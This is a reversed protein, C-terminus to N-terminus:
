REIVGHIFQLGDPIYGLEKLRYWSATLSVKFVDSVTVLLENLSVLDAGSSPLVKTSVEKILSWPMLVASAFANAQWELWDRESQLRDTNKRRFREETDQIADISGQEAYAKMNGAIACFRRHFLAHGMEHAFTFRFVHEFEPAYLAREVLITDPPIILRESFERTMDTIILEGGQFSALGLLNGSKSLYKGAYHWGELFSFLKKLDTADPHREFNRPMLEKVIREAIANIMRQSLVPIGNEKYQIGFDTRTM